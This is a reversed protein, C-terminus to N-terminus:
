FYVQRCGEGEGLRQSLVAWRSTVRLGARLYIKQAHNEAGTFLSCFSAGRELFAQMLLNFLVTGIGRGGWDPDTCIGTFWGRGSRQLDVPGTFGIIEEGRVAVLLPRPGRPRVGDPWCEPDANPQGTHWALLEQRLVNRWYESGVRDCMGDYREGMGPQWRGVHIGEAALREVVADLAPNWRYESLPMYLSVEHFVDRFGRSLLYGYGGTDENVGPANNHDHGGAGPILWTLHVPNNGSVTLASKGAERAARRLADLLAAGVGQRRFGEAVLLLTLYLPTNEATEGPLFRSQAAGHIWGVLRAGSRAAFGWRDPGFFRALFDERELPKYLVEGRRSCATLIDLAAGADAPTLPSITFDM